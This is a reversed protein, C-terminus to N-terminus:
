RDRGTGPRWLAAILAQALSGEEAAAGAPVLGRREPQEPSHPPHQPRAPDDSPRLAGADVPSGGPSSDLVPEPVALGLPPRKALGAAHSEWQAAAECAQAYAPHVDGALDALAHWTAVRGAVVQRAGVRDGRRLADTLARGLAELMDSLAAPQVRDDVKPPEAPPREVKPREVPPTRSREAHSRSTGAM